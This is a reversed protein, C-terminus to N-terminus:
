PQKESYDIVEIRDKRHLPWRRRSIFLTYMLDHPADPQVVHVAFNQKLYQEGQQARFGAYARLRQVTKEISGDRMQLTPDDGDSMAHLAPQTVYAEHKEPEMQLFGSEEYTHLMDFYDLWPQLNTKKM